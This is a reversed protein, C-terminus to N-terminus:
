LEGRFARHQLSAFLADLETLSARQTAKLREVATVRRAFEQQLELPPLPVSLARLQTMNISALNTTKKACSLFYARARPAQLYEHFYRPLLLTNNPRVRFVHNQHICGDVEGNWMAGRGLKDHDGGETLVVDGPKLALEALEAPLAEITKIESLNLFGAQVNAVRLYPVDVTQRGNLKRGKAVGSVVEACDSLKSETYVSSRQLDGFLDLFLSQTLSDLQALAARRKARLAEARDLVEAIRRQEALPPLVIPFKLVETANINSMNISPKARTRLLTKMETTNFWAAVFSPDARDIKLRLRVLYGAFAFSEDRNWVGMKGVLEQSNTRNFLLDGRRVSYQEIDKAPLEVHKIDTLDLAGSYTINNMRLVPVGACQENAKLSTGYQTEEVVEGLLAKPWRSTVKM